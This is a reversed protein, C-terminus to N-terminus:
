YILAVAIGWLPIFDFRRPELHDHTLGRIGCCSSRGRSGHRARMRVDIRFGNPQSSDEVREAKEYVFGKVPHVQNLITKLQM